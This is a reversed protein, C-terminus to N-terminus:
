SRFPKYISETALQLMERDGSSDGYAIIEGYQPLDFQEKIRCVKEDGYCNRGSFKGTLTGNKVELKTALCILGNEDCWPKVWNEASASVVAIPIKQHRYNSIAKMAGPRILGPLIKTSFEFCKSDFESVKEGKFYHSIFYQKAKWNPMLRVAYLALVPSLIAMGFFYDRPGRYFRVFELLTDKTTITGDFDFLALKKV